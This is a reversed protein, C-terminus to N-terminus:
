SKLTVNRSSADSLLPKAAGVFQNGSIVVNACAQLEVGAVGRNGNSIYVRNADVSIGQIHAFRFAAVVTTTRFINQSFTFPGRMTGNGSPGFVIALLSSPARTVNNTVTVDGINSGAGKDAFWANKVSGVTNSDIRIDVLLM